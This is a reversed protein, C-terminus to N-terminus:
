SGSWPKLRIVAPRVLRLPDLYEGSRRVGWHLCVDPVCQQHGPSVQGIVQGQRVRDGSSVVPDVPEYTTRLDSRHKGPPPPLDNVSHEISIVKHEAVAGAFAVVGEAPALVDQGENAALDVGYHGAGYPQNPADFPHMVSPDPSLPWSFHSGTGTARADTPLFMWGLAIAIPGVAFLVIPMARGIRGTPLPPTVM